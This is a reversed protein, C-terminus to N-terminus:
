ISANIFGDAHTVVVGRFHWVDNGVHLAHQPLVFFDILALGHNHIEISKCGRREIKKDIGESFGRLPNLVVFDFLVDQKLNEVNNILV